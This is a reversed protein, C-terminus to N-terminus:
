VTIVLETYKSLHGDSTVLRLPESMAQAVLLRDFPDRHIDPLNRVLAAHVARVPLELFGSAGIESVLLDVDAELKGLGVKISAEWISASSVFVEDAELILTRAAKTLKRDDMVSWLYVHTDLLLRM